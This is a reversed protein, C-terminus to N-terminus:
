YGPRLPISVPIEVARLRRRENLRVNRNKFLQKLGFGVVLGSGSIIATQATLPYNDFAAGILSFGAWSAGFLMLMPGSARLVGPYQLRIAEIGSIPWYRGDLAVRQSDMSADTILAKYWMQDGKFRYTLEDGTYFKLTRARNVRELQIFKQALAPCALLAFALLLGTNRLRMTM